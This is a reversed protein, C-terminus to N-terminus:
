NKQEDGSLGAFALNALRMLRHISLPYQEILQHLAEGNFPVARGAEDTVGRWDILTSRLRHVAAASCAGVDDDAAARSGYENIVQEATPRRVLFDVSAGHGLDVTEWHERVVTASTSLNLTLM